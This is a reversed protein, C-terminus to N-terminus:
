PWVAEHLLATETGTDCKYNCGCIVARKRGGEPTMGSGEQQIPPPGNQYPSPGHGMPLHGQPGPGSPPLNYGGGGGPPQYGPGMQGYGTCSRSTLYVAQNISAPPISRM